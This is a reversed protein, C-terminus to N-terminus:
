ELVKTIILGAALYSLLGEVAWYFVLQTPIALLVLMSLYGTVGAILFLLFGFNLGKEVVNTGAVCVMWTSYAYAFIAGSVFSAGLAAAFFEWGPPGGAPMMLKSWLAFYQPDTYYGMSLFAGIFHIAQSVIAYAAGCLAIKGWIGEGNVHM